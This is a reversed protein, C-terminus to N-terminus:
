GQRGVVVTLPLVCVQKLHSAHVLDAVALVELSNASTVRVTHECLRKFRALGYKDAAVLDELLRETETEEEDDPEEYHDTDDNSSRGQLRAHQATVHDNYIFQLVRVMGAYSEDVRVVRVVRARGNSTIAGFGLLARFYESRAVLVCRHVPIAHGDAELTLDSWAPDGLVFQLDVNLSQRGVEGEAKFVSHVAGGVADLPFVVAASAVPTESLSPSSPSRDAHQLRSCLQELAPLRYLHAARQVDRVLYSQPDLMLSFNDTYMYELLVTAVDLRLQPLLVEVIASPAAEDQNGSASMSSPSFSGGGGSRQESLILDRLVPSRRALVLKHAFLRKGSVILAVDTALRSAVDYFAAPELAEHEKSLLACEHFLTQMARALFSGSTFAVVVDGGCVVYEVIASGMTAGTSVRNDGGDAPLCGASTSRVLSPLSAFGNGDGWVYLDGETSLAAAHQRGASLTEIRVGGTGFTPVLQPVMWDLTPLPPPSLAGPSQQKLLRIHRQLITETVVATRSTAGIGLGLVPGGCAGWAWVRGHADLALSWNEGAAVDRWKLSRDGAVMLEAPSTADNVDGHGLQGHLGRGWTAIAGSRTLGVCHADGCAVKVFRVELESRGGQDDGTETGVTTARLQKPTLQFSQFQRRRGHRRSAQNLIPIRGLGLRGDSWKGWAFAHGTEAVAVCFGGGCAISQISPPPHLEPALQQLAADELPPLQIRQPEAHSRTSRNGLAVGVGWTYVSGDTTVAASHGGTMRDGGCAVCRITLLKDFFFDVLQPSAVSERSSHRGLRPRGLGLAGDVSHGFAFVM